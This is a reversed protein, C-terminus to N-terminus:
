QQRWRGCEMPLAARVAAIEAPGVETEATQAAPCTDEAVVLACKDQVHFPGTAEVARGEATGVEATDVDEIGVGIGVLLQSACPAAAVAM